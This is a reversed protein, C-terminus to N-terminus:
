ASRQSRLTTNTRLSYTGIGLVTGIDYKSYTGKTQAKFNCWGLTKGQVMFICRELTTRHLQVFHSLSNRHLFQDSSVTSSLITSDRVLLIRLSLLAPQLGALTLRKQEELALTLQYSSRSELSYWRFSDWSQFFGPHCVELTKLQSCELVLLQRQIFWAVILHFMYTTSPAWLPIPLKSLRTRLWSPFM